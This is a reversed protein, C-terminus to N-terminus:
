RSPANRDNCWTGGSTLPLLMRPVQLTGLPALSQSPHVSMSELKKYLPCQPGTLARCEPLELIPALAFTPHCQALRARLIGM